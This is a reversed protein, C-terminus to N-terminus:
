NRGSSAKTTDPASATSGKSQRAEVAKMARDTLQMATRIEAETFYVEDGGLLHHIKKDTLQGWTMHNALHWAAAQAARQNIQGTGLMKVLEQVNADTTFTEIPRLEYPVNATPEKKGHELCVTEVKLKAVKEPAINFAGGGGGGRNGGGIGGTGGGVGQNQNNNGGGYSRNGRAAGAGQVAQALVPVAAFADPLKVTLPQDTNNKVLLQGERSNKAIYKVEVDGSKMADFLNVPTKDAAAKDSISKNQSQADADDGKEIPQAAHSVTLPLAVAIALALTFAGNVRLASFM